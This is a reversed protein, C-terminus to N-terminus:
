WWGFQTGAVAVIALLLMILTTKRM